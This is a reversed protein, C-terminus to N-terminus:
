IILHDGRSSLMDLNLQSGLGPTRNILLHGNEVREAPQIVEARWDVEDIAHELFMAGDVAATAHGSSLLSIPGSPSHISYGKGLAVASHGAAVAETVGGCYKLDPMIIDLVGDNLLSTFFEEGYGNEGGAVPMTIRPLVRKLEEPENNPGLPEEFWGISLKELQEAVLHATFEEFRGHCDVLITVEDGVAKRVAAVREIGPGATNLVTEPLNPRQVEDFPACKLVTFGRNVASEAARAFDSPMRDTAFLARNINGYLPIRHRFEGGLYEVLPIGGKLAEVHSFASRIASIAAAKISRGDIADGIGLLEHISKESKIDAGGIRQLMTQIMAAVKLSNEGKTFEVVTEVQDKDTVIMFYWSTRDTVYVRVFETECFNVPM